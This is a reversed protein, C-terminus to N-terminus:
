GHLHGTNHGSVEFKRAATWDTFESVFSPYSRLARDKMHKFEYTGIM